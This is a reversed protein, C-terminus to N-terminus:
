SHYSPSHLGREFKGKKYYKWLFLFLLFNIIGMSINTLFFSNSFYEYIHGGTLQGIDFVIGIVAFARFIGQNRLREGVLAVSLTSINVSLGSGVFGSIYYPLLGKFATQFYFAQLFKNFVLIFLSAILTLFIGKKDAIPGIIIPVFIAATYLIYQYTQAANHPLVEKGLVFTYDFLSENLGGAFFAIFVYPYQTLLAM